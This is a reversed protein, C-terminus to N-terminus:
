GVEVKKLEEERRIEAKVWRVERGLMGVKVREELLM